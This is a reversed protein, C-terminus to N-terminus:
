NNVVRAVAHAHLTFQIIECDVVVMGVTHVHRDWDLDESVLLVPCSVSQKGAQGKRKRLDGCWGDDKNCWLSPWTM